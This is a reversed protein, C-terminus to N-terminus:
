TKLRRFYYLMTKADPSSLGGSVNLEVTYDMSLNNHLKASVDKDRKAEFELM